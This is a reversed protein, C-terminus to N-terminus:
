GGSAGGRKRHPCCEDVRNRFSRQQGMLSTATCGTSTRNTSCLPNSKSATLEECKSGCCVNPQCSAWAQYSGLEAIRPDTGIPWWSTVDLVLRSYFKRRESARFYREVHWIKCLTAIVFTAF